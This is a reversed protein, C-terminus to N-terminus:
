NTQGFRPSSMRKRENPYFSSQAKERVVTKMEEIIILIHKSHSESLVLNFKLSLPWISSIMMSKTATSIETSSFTVIM